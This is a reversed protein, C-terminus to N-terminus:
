QESKYHINENTDNVISSTVVIAVVSVETTVVSVETGGVSGVIVVVSVTVRPVVVAPRYVDLNRLVSHLSSFHLIGSHTQKFSLGGFPREYSDIGCNMVNVNSPATVTM